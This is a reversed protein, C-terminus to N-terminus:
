CGSRRERQPVSVVFRSGAIPPPAHGPALPFRGPSPPVDHCDGQEGHRRQQHENEQREMILREEPFVRIIRPQILQSRHQVEDREQGCRTGDNPNEDHRGPEFGSVRSEVLAHRRRPPQPEYENKGPRRRQNCAADYEDQQSIRDEPPPAVRSPIRFPEAADPHPQHDRQRQRPSPLEASQQAATKDPRLLAGADAEAAGVAERLCRVTLTTRLAPLRHALSPSSRSGKRATPMLAAHGREGPRSNM